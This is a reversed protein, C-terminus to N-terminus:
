LWTGNLNRACLWVGDTYLRISYNANNYVPNTRSLYATDTSEDALQKTVAPYTVRNVSDEYRAGFEGLTVDGRFFAGLYRNFVGYAFEFNWQLHIPNKLCSPSPPTHFNFTLKRALEVFSQSYDIFDDNYIHMNFIFGADQPFEYPEAFWRAGVSSLTQFSYSPMSVYGCTGVQDQPLITVRIGIIYANNYSTIFKESIPLTEFMSIPEFTSNMSITINYPSALRQSTHSISLVNLLCLFFLVWM